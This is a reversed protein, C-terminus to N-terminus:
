SFTRKDVHQEVIEVLGGQLHQFFNKLVSQQIIERYIMKRYSM